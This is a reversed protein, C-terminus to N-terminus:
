INKIIKKVYRRNLVLVDWLRWVLPSLDSFIVNYKIIISLLKRLMEIEELYINNKEITATGSYIKGNNGDITIEQNLLISLRDEDVYCICPLGLGRCVVAAHSTIGKASVVGLCYLSTIIHIDNPPVDYCCYIYYENKKIFEKAQSSTFCARASCIGGSASLGNAVIKLENRNVITQTDLIEQLGQFHIKNIVDNVNIKGECFMSMVIRLNALPTRNGVCASLIYLKENEVVFDINVMDNFYLELSESYKKLEKIFFDKM